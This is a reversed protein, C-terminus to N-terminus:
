NYKEYIWKPRSYVRGSRADEYEIFIRGAVILLENRAEGEEDDAAPSEEYGEPVQL